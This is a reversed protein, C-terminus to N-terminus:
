CKCHASNFITEFLYKHIARPYPLKTSVYEFHLRYLLTYKHQEDVVVPQLEVLHNWKQLFDDNRLFPFFNCDKSLQPTLLMANSCGVLVNKNVM